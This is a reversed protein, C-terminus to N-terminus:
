YSQVIVWGRARRYKETVGKGTHFHRTCFRATVVQYEGHGVHYKAIMTSLSFDRGCVACCKGWYKGVWPLSFSGSM